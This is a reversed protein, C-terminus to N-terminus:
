VVLDKVQEHHVCTPFVHSIILPFPGVFADDRPLDQLSGFAIQANLNEEAFCSLSSLKWIKRVGLPEINIAPDRNRRILSVLMWADAWKGYDEDRFGEGFDKRM